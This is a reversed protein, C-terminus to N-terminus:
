CLHQYVQQAIGYFKGSFAANHQLNPQAVLIAIFNPKAKNYGIGANAYWGFFQLGNEVPKLLGLGVGDTDQGPARFFREFIKSQSAAPVGPGEDIISARLFDGELRSIKLTITGGSPSHKIANSVLNNAVEDLRLPDAQVEPLGSPIEQRFVIGKEAAKPFFLRESRALTEPLRTM